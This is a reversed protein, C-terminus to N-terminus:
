SFLDLKIELVKGFVKGYSSVQEIINLEVDFM